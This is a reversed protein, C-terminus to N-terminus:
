ATGEIAIRAVVWGEREELGFSHRDPFLQALRERLNRVGVGARAAVVAGPPPALSGTNAVEFELRHEVRQVSIRVHLPGQAAGLMGYKVANEVLPHLLMPPVKLPLLSEDVDFHAQLREEFRVRECKVYLRIFELEQDVTADAHSDMDISRRLLASLDRVMDQARRPNESVLAVVSNLSNFLFHPNLQSRLLALQAEGASAMAQVRHERERQVRAALLTVMFLGNSTSLLTFNRLLACMSERLFSCSTPRWPERGILPVSVWVTLTWLASAVVATALLTGVGRLGRVMPPPVRLLILATASSWLAGNLSWFAIWRAGPLLPTSSTIAPVLGIVVMLAWMVLQFVALSHRQTWGEDVVTSRDM